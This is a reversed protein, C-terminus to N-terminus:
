RVHGFFVKSLAILDVASTGALRIMMKSGKPEQFEVVCEPLPLSLSLDFEVFSSLPEQHPLSPKASAVRRKLDRYSLRLTKSVRYSGHREALSVALEWLAAPIRGRRTRTLRWNEFRKFAAKLDSPLSLAPTTM